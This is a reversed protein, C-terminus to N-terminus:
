LGAALALMVNAGVFGTLMITFSIRDLRRSLEPEGRRDYLYLSVTSEVLTVLITM